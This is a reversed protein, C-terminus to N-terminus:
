FRRHLEFQIGYKNSPDAFPNVFMQIDSKLDYTGLGYGIINPFKTMGSRFPFAEIWYGDPRGGQVLQPQFLPLAAPGTPECHPKLFVKSYM